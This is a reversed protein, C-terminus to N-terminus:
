ETSHRDNTPQSRWISGVQWHWVQWSDSERTQSAPKRGHMQFFGNLEDRSMGRGNDAITIKNPAIEVTVIVHQHDKAGDLSNSVYEWVVKEYTNFYQASQEFDRSVHSTVQIPDLVNSM